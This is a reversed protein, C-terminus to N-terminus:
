RSAGVAGPATLEISVDRYLLDGDPDFLLDRPPSPLVIRFDTVGPQVWITTELPPAAELPIRLLVPFRIQAGRQAITGILEYRSTNDTARRFGYRVDFSPVDASQVWSSFFWSLDDGYVEEALSEFVETTIDDRYEHMMRCLRGFGDLGLVERLMHLVMAAKHYNFAYIAEQTTMEFGLELAEESSVALAVRRSRELELRMMQNGYESELFLLATYTPLGERLWADRPRPIEIYHNWWHHAIEHALVRYPFTGDPDIDRSEIFTVGPYTVGSINDPLQIAVLNWSRRNLMGIRDSFFTAAAGMYDVYTDILSQHEQPFFGRLAGVMTLKDRQLFPAIALPIQTSPVSDRWSYTITGDDNRRATNTGASVLVWPQPLTATLTMAMPVFRQFEAPDRAIRFHPYWPTTLLMQGSERLTRDFRARYRFTWTTQTGRELPPTMIRVFGRRRRYSLPVGDADEILDLNMDSRMAVVVSELREEAVFTLDAEILATPLDPEVEFRLDISRATVEAVSQAAGEPTAGQPAPGLLPAALTLAIFAAELQRFASRM